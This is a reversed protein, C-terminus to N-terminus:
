RAGASKIGRARIAEAAAVSARATRVAEIYAESALALDNEQGRRYTAMVAQQEARPVMRWHEHCMLKDSHVSMKCGVAFCRRLQPREGAATPARLAGLAVREGRVDMGCDGLYSELLSRHCRSPALCTCVLTTEDRDLLKNFAASQHKFVHRMRTRYASAYSEWATDPTRLPRPMREIDPNPAFVVGFPSKSTTSIDLRDEALYATHATYIIGMTTGGPLPLSSIRGQEAMRECAGVVILAQVALAAAQERALQLPHELPADYLFAAEGMAEVAAVLQEAEHLLHLQAQWRSVSLSEETLPASELQAAMREVFPMLGPTRLLCQLAAGTASLGSGRCLPCLVMRADALPVAFSEPSSGAGAVAPPHPTTGEGHCTGCCCRELLLRATM